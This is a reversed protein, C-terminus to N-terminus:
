IKGLPGTGLKKVAAESATRNASFVGHRKLAREVAPGLKLLDDKNVYDDAGDTIAALGRDDTISGSFVIFPVGGAVAKAAHLAAPWEFGPIHYDCLIIDPQAALGQAMSPKDCATLIVPEEGFHLALHRKILIADDPNDDVILVKM